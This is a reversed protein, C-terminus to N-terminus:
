NQFFNNAMPNEYVDLHRRFSHDPRNATAVQFIVPLSNMILAMNFVFFTQRSKEWVM